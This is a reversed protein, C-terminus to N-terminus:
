IFEPFFCLYDAFDDAFVGSHHDGFGCDASSADYIQLDAFLKWADTSAFDCVLFFPMLNSAKKNEDNIISGSELSLSSVKRNRISHEILQALTAYFGFNLSYSDVGISDLM